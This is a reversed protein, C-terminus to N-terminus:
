ALVGPRVIHHEEGGGLVEFMGACGHQLCHKAAASRSRRSRGTSLQRIVVSSTSTTPTTSPSSRIRSGGTVVLLATVLVGVIVEVVVM